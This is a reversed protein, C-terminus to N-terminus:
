PSRLRGPLMEEGPGGLECGFPIGRRDPLLDRDFRLVGAVDIALELLDFSKPSQFVLRKRAVEIIPRDGLEAGLGAFFSSRIWGRERPWAPRILPMLGASIAVNSTWRLREDESQRLRLSM